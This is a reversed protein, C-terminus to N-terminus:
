SAQPSTPTYANSGLDKAVTGVGKYDSIWGKVERKPLRMVGFVKTARPLRVM